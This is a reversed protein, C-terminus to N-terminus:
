ESAQFDNCTGPQASYQKSQSDYIVKVYTEKQQLDKLNSPDQQTHPTSVPANVNEELKLVAAIVEEVNKTEYGSARPMTFSFPQNNFIVTLKNITEMNEDGKKLHVKDLLEKRLRTTFEDFTANVNIQEPFVAKSINSIDKDVEEMIKKIVEVLQEGGKMVKRQTRRRRAGGKKMSKRQQRKQQKKQQRQRKQQQKKMSKRMGSKRTAAM